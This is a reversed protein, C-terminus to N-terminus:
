FPDFGIENPDFLEGMYSNPINKQIEKVKQKAIERDHQPNDTEPVFVDVYISARFRRDGREEKIIKKYQSEIITKLQSETIKIIKKM